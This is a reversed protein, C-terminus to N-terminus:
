NFECKPTDKYDSLSVPSRNLRLGNKYKRQIVVTVYFDQYDAIPTAFHVSHVWQHRHPIVIMAPDGPEVQLLCRSRKPLSCGSVTILSM